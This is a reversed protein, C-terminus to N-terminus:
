GALVAVHSDEEPSDPCTVIDCLVINTFLIYIIVLATNNSLALVM